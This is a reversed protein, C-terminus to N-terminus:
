LPAPMHQELAKLGMAVLRKGTRVTMGENLTTQFAIPAWLKRLTEAFVDAYAQRDATSTESKPPHVRLAAATQTNRECFQGLAVTLNDHLSTEITLRARNPLDPGIGNAVDHSVQKFIAHLTEAQTCVALTNRRKTIHRVIKAYPSGEPVHRMLAEGLLRNDPHNILLRLTKATEPNTKSSPHITDFRAAHLDRANLGEHILFELASMEKHKANVDIDPRNLLKKVLASPAFASALTLISIENQNYANPDIDPDKAMSLMAPLFAECTATDRNDCYTRLMRYFDTTKQADKDAATYVALVIGADNEYYTTQPANMAHAPAM